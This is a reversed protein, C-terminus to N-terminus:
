KEKRKRYVVPANVFLDSFIKQQNTIDEIIETTPPYLKFKNRMMPHKPNRRKIHTRRKKFFLNVVDKM